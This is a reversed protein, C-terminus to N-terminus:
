KVTVKLSPYDIYAYHHPYPGPNLLITKGIRDVGRAEHIHGSLVMLPQHEEVFKRIEKSGVHMGLLVKDVKTGYPPTHSVLIFDSKNTIKKISNLKERFEDESFEQPTFFPSKNGGGVGCITLGRFEVCRGDISIGKEELFRNVGKNDCNGFVAFLPLSNFQSLIDEVDEYGGFNTIDGGLIVLDVGRTIRFLEEGRVIRGHIDTVFLIKM